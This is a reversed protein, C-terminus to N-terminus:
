RAKKLLRCHTGKRLSILREDPQHETNDSVLVSITWRMKDSTEDCLCNRAKGVLINNKVSKM